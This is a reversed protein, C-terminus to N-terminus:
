ERDTALYYKAKPPPGGQKRGPKVHGATSPTSRAEHRFIKSVPSEGEATYRELYSRSDKAQFRFGQLPEM